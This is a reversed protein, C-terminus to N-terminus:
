VSPIIKHQEPYWALHTAIIMDMSGDWFYKENKNVIVVDGAALSITNNEFTITGNGSIIYCVEKCQENLAWGVEPYRGTLSVHAIDINKDGSPYETVTCAANNQKVNADSQKILKMCSIRQNISICIIACIFLVHAAHRIKPTM